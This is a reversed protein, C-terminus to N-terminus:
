SIKIYLLNVRHTHTHACAYTDDIHTTFACAQTFTPGMCVGIGACSMLHGETDSEATKRSIPDREPGSASRKWDALEQSGRTGGESISTNLILRSTM